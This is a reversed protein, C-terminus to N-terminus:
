WRSIKKNAIVHYISIPLSILAIFAQVWLILPVLVITKGASKLSVRISPEERYLRELFKYIAFSELIGILYSLLLYSLPYKYIFALVISIPTFQLSGFIYQSLGGGYIGFEALIASIITNAIVFIFPLSGLSTYLSTLVLNRRRKRVLKKARTIFLKQIGLTIRFVKSFFRRPSSPDVTYSYAGPIYLVNYGRLQLEWSISTDEVYTDEPIGGVEILPKVKYLACSGNLSNVSKFVSESFRVTLLYYLSAINRFARAFFWSAKGSGEPKWLLVTGNAGVVSEDKNMFHMLKEIYKKEVITDSDLVLMYDHEKAVEGLVSNIMKPKGSHSAFSMIAIYIEKGTRLHVRYKLLTRGKEARVEILEGSLEGILNQVVELTNDKSADNLVYITRPLVSQNLVSLISSRIFKSANRAPIVVAVTPYRLIPIAETRTPIKVLSQYHTKWSKFTVIGRYLPVIWIFYLGYKIYTLFMSFKVIDDVEIFQPIVPPLMREPM